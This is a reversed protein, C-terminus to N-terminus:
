RPAGGRQGLAPGEWEAVSFGQWTKEGAPQKSKDFNLLRTQTGADFDLKLTNDDQWTIHIRGPQRIIGGVGFARCQLGAADDKAIDWENVIKRADATLAPLSAVDGKRPTIM